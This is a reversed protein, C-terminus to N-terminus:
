TVSATRRRAARRGTCGCRSGAVWGRRSARLPVRSRRLSGCPPPHLLHRQRDSPSRGDRHHQAHLRLRFRLLVAQRQRARGHHLHRGTLPHGPDPHQRHLLDADRGARARGARPLLPQQQRPRADSPLVAPPHDWREARRRISKRNSYRNAYRDHDNESKRRHISRTLQRNRSAPVTRPSSPPPRATSCPMWTRACVM